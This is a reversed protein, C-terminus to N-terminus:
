KWPPVLFFDNESDASWSRTHLGGAREGCFVPIPAFAAGPVACGHRKTGDASGCQMDAYERNTPQCNATLQWTPVDPLLLTSAIRDNSPTITSKSYFTRWRSMYYSSCPLLALAFFSPMENHLLPFARSAEANPFNKTQWHNWTKTATTRVGSVTLPSGQVPRQWCDASAIECCVVQLHRGPLLHHGTNTDTVTLRRISNRSTICLTHLSPPSKPSQSWPLGTRPHSPRLPTMLRALCAIRAEPM